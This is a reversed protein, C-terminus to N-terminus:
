KMERIKYVIFAVLIPQAHINSYAFSMIM